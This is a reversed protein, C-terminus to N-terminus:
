TPCLTDADVVYYLKLIMYFGSFHGSGGINFYFATIAPIIISKKYHILKNM